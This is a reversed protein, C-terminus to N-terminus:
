TAPKRGLAAASTEGLRSAYNTMVLFFNLQFAAQGIIRPGLLAGVRGVGIQQVHDDPLSLTALAADRAEPYRAAELDLGFRRGLDVYGTPDLAPGPRVLTFDVDFIVARLPAPM